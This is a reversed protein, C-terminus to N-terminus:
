TASDWGIARNLEACLAERADDEAKHSLPSQNPVNDSRAWKIHTPGDHSIQAARTDAGLWAAFRQTEPYQTTQSM